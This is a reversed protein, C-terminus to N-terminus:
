RYELVVAGNTVDVYAGATMRVPYKFEIRRTDNIANEGLEIKITGSAASANDYIEVLADATDPKLTVAYIYCPRGVLATDYDVSKVDVYQADKVKPDRGFQALAPSISGFLFTVALVAIILRKM